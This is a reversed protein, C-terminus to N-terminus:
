QKVPIWIEEESEPHDHRYKEGMVAFHPRDDLSFGSAPLWETFIWRYSEAAGAARGKYEFVAYPGAPILLLEMASPLRSVQSVEAAAWKVFTQNPDFEKFYGPKYVEVSFLYSSAGNEIEKRRPMFNQWLTTTENASLSMTRSMGILKKEGINEIRSKM